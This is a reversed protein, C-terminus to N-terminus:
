GKLNTCFPLSLDGAISGSDFTINYSGNVVDGNTMEDILLQGSRGKEITFAGDVVNLFRVTLAAEGAVDYIGEVVDSANFTFQLAVTDQEVPPEEEEYYRNVWGMELCDYDRDTLLVFPGGWYAVAVQLEVGNVSGTATTDGVGGGCAALLAMPCLWFRM